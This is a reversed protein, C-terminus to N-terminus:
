RLSSDWVRPSKARNTSVWQWRPEMATWTTEDSQGRSAPSLKPLAAVAV